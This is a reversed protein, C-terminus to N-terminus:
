ARGEARRSHPDDIFVPDQYLVFIRRRAASKQHSGLEKDEGGRQGQDEGEGGRGQPHSAVPEFVIEGPPGLDTGM